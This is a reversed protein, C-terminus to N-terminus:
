FTAATLGESQDMSVHFLVELKLFWTSLLTILLLINNFYYLHISDIVARIRKKFQLCNRFEQNVISTIQGINEKDDSYSCTKVPKNDKFYTIKQM